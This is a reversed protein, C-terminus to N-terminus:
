SLYSATTFYGGTGVCFKDPNSMEEFDIDFMISLPKEGEAPAISYIHNDTEPNEVSLM